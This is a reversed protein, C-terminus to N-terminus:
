NEIILFLKRGEGGDTIEDVWGGVWRDVWRGVEPPISVSIVFSSFQQSFFGTGIMSHSIQSECRPSPTRKNIVFLKM